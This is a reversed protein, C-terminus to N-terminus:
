KRRRGRYQSKVPGPAEDWDGITQHDCLFIVKGFFLLPSSGKKRYLDSSSMGAAIVALMARSNAVSLSSLGDSQTM